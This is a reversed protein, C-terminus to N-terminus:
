NTEQRTKYRDVSGKAVFAEKQVGNTKVKEATESGWAGGGPTHIVIRDGKGMKVTAKGGLNVRSEGDEGQRVWDNRGLAGPGGGELGYPRHSRRESLISCQVPVLFEIDRVVGNGGPHLGIGGSGERLSFERLICPYRKEFIEPDTIRTNTMHTHLGSQGDWTPGAGVGGAITEYYGFGDVHNGDEGKGGTGFTLNNCCGQSAACARFAKLIVDTIRQSTLVNGGVVGATKSPSLLSREPIRIDIPNLCGQNLPIDSKILARLCYIIASHTIATPANTNGFVESGTGSFDFIAEGKAADITVKLAIPTGDDMCDVSELVPGLNESTTKLLERVAIEATSQIAYM